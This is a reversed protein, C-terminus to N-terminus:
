DRPRASPNTAFIRPVRQLGIVPAMRRTLFTEQFAHLPEKGACFLRSFVPTATFTPMTPTAPRMPASSTFANRALESTSSAAAASRGPPSATPLSTPSSASRRAVAHPDARIQLTHNTFEIHHDVERGGRGHRNRGIDTRGCSHSKQHAGRTEVCAGLLLQICSCDVNWQEHGGVGAECEVYQQFEHLTGCACQRICVVNFDEFGMM